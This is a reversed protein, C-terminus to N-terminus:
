SEWSKRNEGFPNDHIFCWVYEDPHTVLEHKVPNLRIYELHGIFDDRDRIRHDLFRGQWISPRKQQKWLAKMMNAKIGGMVTEIVINKGPRILCHWHDPLIVLAALRFTHYQHVEHFAQQLLLCNEYTSFIFERKKTVVTTFYWQNPGDWRQSIWPM